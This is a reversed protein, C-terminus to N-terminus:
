IIIHLIDNLYIYAFVEYRVFLFGINNLILIVQTEKLLSLSTLSLNYKGLSYIYMYVCIHTYIYM